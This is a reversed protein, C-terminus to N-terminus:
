VLPVSAICGSPTDRQYPRPPWGTLLVSKAAPVIVPTAATPRNRVTSGVISEGHSM